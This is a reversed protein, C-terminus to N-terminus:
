AALNMGGDFFDSAESLMPIYIDEEHGFEDHADKFFNAFARRDELSLKESDMVNMFRDWATDRIEGNVYRSLLHTIAYPRSAKQENTRSEM